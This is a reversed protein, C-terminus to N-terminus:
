FIITYAVVAFCAIVTTACASGVMLRKRFAWKKEAASQMMPVVALVPLSLLRTVEDDAKFTRDRYELFAILALGIALGAGMGALNLLKRNPSFPKEPLRAPDLVKFQEGIQRSEMSAAIRSDEKKTLLSTYMDQLTKYDRTLQIMESERTPAAEVRAQYANVQDRLAKEQKQKDEVGRDIQEIEMRYDQLRRARASLPVPVSVPHDGTDGGDSAKKELDRVTRAMAQVSPHDPKLRTQLEALRAKAAALQQAPTPADNKDEPAPASLAAQEQLELEAIQRELILRREQDHSVSEAVNQAQQQADHIVQLNSELQTPLQGSYKRRYEEVKKEQEVLRLRAEELQQELFQNTNNALTARDKLNEDVFLSALGETVKMVTRPEDGRYSLRFADGRVVQLDIDRRMQEVIDEMVYKKREEPYLNFEQIIKELRTRSMIQQSLSQLRDEIRTTITSKVYSEPVRQPVVMVLTESRYRDPLKHVVAAVIASVVALPVLLLWIRRVLIQLIDEPTYTKGPLM